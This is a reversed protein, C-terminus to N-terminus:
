AVAKAGPLVLTRTCDPLAHPPLFYMQREKVELTTDLYPAPLATTASTELSFPPSVIASFVARRLIAVFTLIRLAANDESGAILNRAAPARPSTRM